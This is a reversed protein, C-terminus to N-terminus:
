SVMLWYEGTNIAGKTLRVPPFNKAKGWRLPADSKTSCRACNASTPSSSASKPTPRMRFTVSGRASATSCWTPNSGASDYTATAGDDLILTPSGLSTDVIVAESM